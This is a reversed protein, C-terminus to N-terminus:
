DYYELNLFDYDYVKGKMLKSLEPQKTGIKQSETEIAEDIDKITRWSITNPMDLVNTICKRGRLGLEMITAAGGAYSSLVLGVFCQKYIENAKGSRWESQPISGDGILIDYDSSISEILESGHYMPASNPLYVYVKDGLPESKIKEKLSFPPILKLNVVKDKLREYINQNITIHQVTTPLEEWRTFDLSDQGCWFVVALSSHLRIAQFDRDEYCGIFLCPRSSDLYDTLKLSQKFPFDAVSDSVLCQNIIM